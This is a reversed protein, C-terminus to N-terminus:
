PRVVEHPVHPPDDTRVQRRGLWPGGYGCLSWSGEDDFEAFRVLRLPLHGLMRFARLRSRRLSLLLSRLRAPPLRAPSRAGRMWSFVLLAWAALVLQWRDAPPLKSVLTAIRPRLPARAMPALVADGPRLELCRILGDVVPAVEDEGRELLVDAFLEDYLAGVWAPAGNAPENM